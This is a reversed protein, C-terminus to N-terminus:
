EHSNDCIDRVKESNEDFFYLFIPQREYNWCVKHRKEHKGKLEWITTPFDGQVRCHLWDYTGFVAFHIDPDENTTNKKIHDGPIAQKMLDMYIYPM